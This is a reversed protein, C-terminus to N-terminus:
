NRREGFRKGRRCRRTITCDFAVSKGSPRAALQCASEPGGRVFRSSFSMEIQKKDSLLGGSCDTSGMKKSDKIEQTNVLNSMRAWLSLRYRIKACLKGGKRIVDYTEDQSIHM